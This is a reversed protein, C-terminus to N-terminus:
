EPSGPACWTSWTDAFSLLAGPRVIYADARDAPIEHYWDIEVDAVRSRLRHERKAVGPLITVRDGAGDVFTDGARALGM